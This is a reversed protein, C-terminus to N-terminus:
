LYQGGNAVATGKHRQFGTGRSVIFFDQTGLPALPRSAPIADAM